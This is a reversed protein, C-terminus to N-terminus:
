TAFAQAFGEEQAYGYNSRSQLCHAEDASIHDCRCLDVTDGGTTRNAWPSGMANETPPMRDPLWHKLLLTYGADRARVRDRWAAAEADSVAAGEAFSSARYQEADM